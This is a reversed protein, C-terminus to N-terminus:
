IGSQDFTEQLLARIEAPRLRNISQGVAKEVEDKTEFGQTRAWHWFATWSYSAADVTSSGPRSSLTSTESLVPGSITPANAPGIEAGLAEFARRLSKNEALEVYLQGEDSTASGHGTSRGGGPIAISAKFVALKDDLYIRTTEVQLNPQENRLQELASNLEESWM